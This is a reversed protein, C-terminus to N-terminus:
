WESRSQEQYLIGDIRHDKWIGFATATTPRRKELYEAIAVRILEARTKKEVACIDALGQIQRDPIDILTRMVIGMYSICIIYPFLLGRVTEPKGRLHM